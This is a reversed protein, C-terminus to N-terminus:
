ALHDENGDELPLRLLNEELDWCLFLNDFLPCQFRLHSIIFLDILRCLCLKLPLLLLLILILFYNILSKLFSM